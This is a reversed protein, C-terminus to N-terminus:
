IGPSRIPPWRDAWPRAEELQAAVRLLLEERGFAAGLQVGIPVGDRNWYLPLNIAPQGSTNFQGTFAVYGRCRLIGRLPNGPTADFEGLKAPPEGLTPSLLLDFGDAWWRAFRRTWAQLFAISTAVQPAPQGRAMEALAWTLPEVDDAGIPKGARQSWSDLAAATRTSWLIMFHPTVDPAEDIAAPWAEEVRHGCSGLLAAAEQVAAVCDPHLEAEGGPVHALLGIRLSGPDAGVEAAYPRAPPPATYPDGPMYGQMVDLISATDRVSRSVLGEISIGGLADGAWPGMSFRGRTEKLGVLGCAAAPIRTSGGGDSATAVPVMGSAVAAASGGSSGGPSRAPDWPNRTRGYAEPETTPLLGLEPTNTKGLVVFGARKLKAVLWSDEPERWDVDRLAKMGCHFPDGASYGALDKLVIPVGRFPGDPLSGSEAERRAREFRETIVANLEPNLGEIRAIAADVLQRPSVEGSRVKEAQATADLRALAEDM